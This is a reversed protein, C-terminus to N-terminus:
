AEAGGTMRRALAQGSDWACEVRPGALWDGCCGLRSAHSWLALDTGAASRAYRWRHAQVLVPSPLSAGARDSLASLLATIVSEPADELHDRSWGPSAQLVWAEVAARGPKASNRAAWGLVADEGLTDATFPLRGSYAAMVTWCPDTRSAAARAALNKDHGALLAAAQEAPLALVVAEFPDSVEGAIRLRWGTGERVLAEAQQGWAVNMGEALARVPANMGPVGVWAEPGAAPWPAALGEATWRAVEARFSEGRATFYQAGHDLGVTGLPTEVRRTSMRGGPGRAKDFLRVERGERALSRACALGSLGAGVIAIRDLTQNM